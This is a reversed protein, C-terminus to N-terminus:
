ARVGNVNSGAVLVQFLESTNEKMAVTTLSPFAKASMLHSVALEIHKSIASLAQNTAEHSVVYKRERHRLVSGMHNMEKEFLDIGESDTETNSNPPPCDIEEPNERSGRRNQAEAPTSTAKQPASHRSRPTGSTTDGVIPEAKRKRPRSLSMRSVSEGRAIASTHCGQQSKDPNQM